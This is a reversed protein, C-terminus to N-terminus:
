AEEILASAGEYTKKIQDLADATFVYTDNIIVIAGFEKKEPIFFLSATIESVGVERIIPHREKCALVNEDATRTRSHECASSDVDPCEGSKCDVVDVIFVTDGPKCPLIDTLKDEFERIDKKMNTGKAFNNQLLFEKLDRIGNARYKKLM